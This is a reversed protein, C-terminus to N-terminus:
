ESSPSKKKTTTMERKETDEKRRGRRRRRKSRKSRKEDTANEMKGDSKLERWRRKIGVWAVPHAVM